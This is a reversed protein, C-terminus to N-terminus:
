AEAAALEAWAIPEVTGIIRAFAFIGALSLSAALVFAARFSGTADVIFGTAIPAMAGALNGLLNQIGMWRGGASPGGLTQGITFLMPNVGGSAIGFAVLLPLAWSDPAIGVLLLATGCGACGAIAVSKRVATASRGAAILRDSIQGAAVASLSQVAFIGAGTWAMATLSLHAFEVLFAPLWALLLYYQYNACAHALSIGWLARKGLISSFRPPARESVFTGDRAFRPISLWPVLWCLSAGGLVFFVARWGWHALMLGGALAGASPGLALGGAIMGNARGRFREPMRAIIRANAPFIVSEGFGLAFRLALLLAFSDAFGSLFTAGSWLAVGVALVLRVDFHHVLAGAAPQSLAYTWFFASLLYGMQTHDIGLRGKLVPAVISLSGRDAYNVFMALALLGVLVGFGRPRAQMDVTTM